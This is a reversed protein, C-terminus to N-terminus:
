WKQVRHKRPLLVSLLSWAFNVLSIVKSLDLFIKTRFSASNFPFIQQNQYYLSSADRRGAPITPNFLTLTSLQLQSLNQLRTLVIELCYQHVSAKNNKSFKNSCNQSCSSSNGRVRNKPLFLRRINELHQHHIAASVIKRAFFDRLEKSTHCTQSLLFYSM